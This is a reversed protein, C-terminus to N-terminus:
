CMSESTVSLLGAQILPVLFIVMSFIDHDIEMFTHPRTKVGPDAILIAISGAKPLHNLSLMCVHHLYHLQVKQVM